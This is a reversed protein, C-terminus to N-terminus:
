REKKDNRKRARSTKVLIKRYFIFRQPCELSCTVKVICKKCPCKKTIKKNERKVYCKGEELGWCIENCNHDM